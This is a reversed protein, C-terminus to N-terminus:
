LVGGSNASSAYGFNMMSGITLSSSGAVKDFGVENLGTLAYPHSPPNYVANDNSM